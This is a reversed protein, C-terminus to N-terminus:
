GRNGSSVRLAREQKALEFKRGLLETVRAADGERQAQKIEM